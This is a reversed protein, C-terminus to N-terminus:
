QYLKGPYVAELTRTRGKGPRNAVQEEELNGQTMSTEQKYRREAFTLGAWRFVMILGYALLLIMIVAFTFEITAQGDKNKMVTM